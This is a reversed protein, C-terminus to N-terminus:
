DKFEPSREERRAHIAEELNQTTVRVFLQAMGKADM